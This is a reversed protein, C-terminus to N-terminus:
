KTHRSQGSNQHRSVLMYVTRDLNVELGVEKIADILSKIDKRTTEINNGLLNVGDAYALLQNHGM